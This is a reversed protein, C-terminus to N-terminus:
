QINGVYCRLKQHCLAKKREIEHQPNPSEPHHPRSLFHAKQPRFTDHLQAGNITGVSWTPVGANVSQTLTHVRLTRIASGVYLTPDIM